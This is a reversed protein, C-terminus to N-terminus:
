GDRWDAGHRPSFVFGRRKELIARTGGLEEVKLRLAEMARRDTDEPDVISRLKAELEGVKERSGGAAALDVAEEPDSELDFLQPPMDVYYILKYRGDRLMFSATKSGMGHYEAFGLRETERGHLAPWLSVGPLAKDDETPAEGFAEVITPFFDVHSTVQRVARGSPIGPGAMLLPVAVSPEYHFSTHVIYNHGHSSGHDSSYIVRTNADLGTNELAAMVQGVQEDLHTLVGFYCAAIKQMLAEDVGDEYRLVKRYHQLAPHEPRIAPHIQGPLPSGQPTYLDYLRQPITYPPHASTYGVYLVWPKGNQRVHRKLWKVTQATIRRDYEQDPNTEDVGLENVYRQWIGDRVEEGSCRLLGVLDGIGETIHMPLIEESFGNDDETSRYHLRGIASVEHGQDRLRRMWSPIRGDYATSSEWYEHQHVYLGTAISARAPMCLPSSCYANTFRVGRDAIRDLNPTMVIPHGYSGLVKQSHSEGLIFLLNAPEVM